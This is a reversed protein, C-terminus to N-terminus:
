DQELGNLQSAMMSKSRKERKEVNVPNMYKIFGLLWELAKDTTDFKYAKCRPFVSFQYFTEIEFFECEDHRKGTMQCCKVDTKHAGCKKKNCYGDYCHPCIDASSGQVDIEFHISHKNVLLATPLLQYIQNINILDNETM